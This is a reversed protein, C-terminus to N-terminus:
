DEKENKKWAFLGGFEDKSDDKPLIMPAAHKKEKEEESFNFNM